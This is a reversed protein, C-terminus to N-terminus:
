GADGTVKYRKVSCTLGFFAAAYSIVLAFDVLSPWGTMARRVYAFGAGVPLVASIKQLAEPFFYSPYFCGSLYGLVVTLIFQMLVAAVRNSILEYVMMQMFTIMVVVPLIKVIFLVCGVVTLGELEPVDPEM